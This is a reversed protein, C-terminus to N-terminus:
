EVGKFGNLIEETTYEYGHEKLKELIESMTNVVKRYDDIYNLKTEMPIEENELFAEAKQYRKVVQNYTKFYDTITPM